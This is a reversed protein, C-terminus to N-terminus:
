KGLGNQIFDIIEKTNITEYMKAYKGYGSAISDKLNWKEKEETNLWYANKAKRCINKLEEYRPENHNNRADGMFIITSDKTIEQRHNEWIDTIPKAYNSYVGRTPITNLVSEITLDANDKDMYGSIDYLSNVFVYTRTDRPFVSHLLYMFSLMMESAKRCSGSIDLIMMLRAKGKEHKKYIIKMPLGGTRCASQITALMDIEHRNETNVARTMRTKFKLLNEKIYQLIEQKQNPTLMNFAKTLILEPNDSITQVENHGGTFIDRHIEAKEKIIAQSTENLVRDFRRQINQSNQEENSIRYDYETIRQQYTISINELEEETEKESREINSLIKKFVNFLTYSSKYEPLLGEIIASEANKQIAKMCNKIEDKSITGQKLKSTMNIGLIKKLLDEKREFVKIDIGHYKHTNKKNKRERELIEQWEKKLKEREKKYSEKRSMSEELEKKIQEQEDKRYKRELRKKFFQKYLEPFAKYENRTSSMIPKLCKMVEDDGKANQLTKSAKKLIDPSITFDNDRLYSAFETLFNIKETQEM